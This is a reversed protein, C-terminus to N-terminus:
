YPKGQSKQAEGDCIHSITLRYFITKIEYQTARKEDKNAM